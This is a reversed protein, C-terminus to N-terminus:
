IKCMLNETYFEQIGRIWGFMYCELYDEEVLQSDNEIIISIHEKIKEWIQMKSFHTGGSENVVEEIEWFSLNYIDTQADDYGMDSYYVRIPEISEEHLREILEDLENNEYFERRSEQVVNELQKKKGNSGKNSTNKEDKSITITQEESKKEDVQVSM